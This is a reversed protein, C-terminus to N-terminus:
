VTKIMLNRIQMGNMKTKASMAMYAVTDSPLEHPFALKGAPAVLTDPPLSTGTLTAHMDMMVGAKVLKIAGTLPDRNQLYGDIITKSVWSKSSVRPGAAFFIM